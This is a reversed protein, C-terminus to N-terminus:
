YNGITWFMGGLMALPYFGPFGQLCFVLFGIFLIAASMVWQAFMGSLFDYNFYGLEGVTPYVKGDSADYKRIPVFMSGFFVASVGCACLGIAVSM